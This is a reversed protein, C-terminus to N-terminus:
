GGGGPRVQVAGASSDIVVDVMCLDGPVQRQASSIEASGSGTSVLGVKVVQGWGTALRVGAQRQGPYRAHQSCLELAHAYCLASHVFASDGANPPARVVTVNALPALAAAAERFTEDADGVILQM